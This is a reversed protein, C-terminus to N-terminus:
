AKQGMNAREAFCGNHQSPNSFLDMDINSSENQFFVFMSSHILYHHSHDKKPDMM